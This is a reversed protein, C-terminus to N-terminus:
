FSRVEAGTQLQTLFEEARAQYAALNPGALKERIDLDMTQPPADGYEAKHEEFYARVQEETVFASPVGAKEMLSALLLRGTADRVEFALQDEPSGSLNLHAAVVPDDGTGDGAASAKLRAIQDKQAETLEIKQAAAAQFVLERDIANKFLYEFMQPSLTVERPGRGPTVATLDKLTIPVGNVTALVQAIGIQVCPQGEVVLNRPPQPAPVPVAPAAPEPPAEPTERPESSPPQAEAVPSPTPAPVDPQPAPRRMFLVFAAVASLAAFFAFLRLTRKM